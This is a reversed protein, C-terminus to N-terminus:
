KRQKCNEMVVKGIQGPNVNMIMMSTMVGDILKGNGIVKTEALWSLVNAAGRFAIYLSFNRSKGQLTVVGCIKEGWTEM